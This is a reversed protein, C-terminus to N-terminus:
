AYTYSPFFTTADSLALNRNTRGFMSSLKIDYPLLSANVVFGQFPATGIAMQSGLNAAMAYYTEYREFSKRYWDWPLRDFYDDRYEPQSVTFRSVGSWLVTGAALSVKLDRTNYNGTFFLKQRASINRALDGQPDGTFNHAFSYGVFYNFRPSVKSSLSLELLPYGGTSITGANALPYDLFSINRDSTIMDDYSKDMHRFYTIFRMVGSIVLKDQTIATKSPMTDSVWSPVSLSDAMITKNLRVKKLGLSNFSLFQHYTRSSDPITDTDATTRPSAIASGTLVISNIFLVASTLRLAFAGSRYKFFDTM